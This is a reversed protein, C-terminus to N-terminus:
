EGAKEKRAILVEIIQIVINTHARRFDSWNHGDLYLWSKNLELENILFEQSLNSIDYSDAIAKLEVGIVWAATGTLERTALDRGHFEMHHHFNARTELTTTNM